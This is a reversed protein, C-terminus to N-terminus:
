AHHSELSQLIKLVEGGKDVANDWHFSITPLHRRALAHRLEHIFHSALRNLRNICDTQDETHFGHVWIILRQGSATPEIRTINIDRLRSDAVDRRMLTSLLRHIDAHLRRDSTSTTRM